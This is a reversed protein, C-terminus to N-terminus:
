GDFRARRHTSAASTTGGVAQGREEGREPVASRDHRSPRTPSEDARTVDDLRLAAAASSTGEHMPMGLLARWLM